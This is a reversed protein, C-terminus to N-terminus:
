NNSPQPFVRVLIFSALGWVQITHPIHVFLHMAVRSCLVHTSNTTKKYKFVEVNELLSLLSFVKLYTQRRANLREVSCIYSNKKAFRAVCM